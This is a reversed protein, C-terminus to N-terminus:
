RINANERWSGYSIWLIDKYKRNKYEPDSIKYLPCRLQVENIIESKELDTLKSRFAM